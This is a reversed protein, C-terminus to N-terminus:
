RDVYDFKLFTNFDDGSRSPFLTANCSGIRMGAIKTRLGAFSVAEVSRHCVREPSIQFGWIVWVLNGLSVSRAAAHIISPNVATPHGSASKWKALIAKGLVCVSLTPLNTFVPVFLLLPLSLSCFVVM